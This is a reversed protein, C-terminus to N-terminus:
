LNCKCKNCKTGNCYSLKVKKNKFYRYIIGDSKKVVKYPELNFYIKIKNLM